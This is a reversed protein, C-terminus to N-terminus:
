TSICLRSYLHLPDLILYSNSCIVTITGIMVYLTHEAKLIYVHAAELAMCKCFRKNLDDFYCQAEM